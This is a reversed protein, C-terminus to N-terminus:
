VCRIGAIGFLHVHLDALPEPHALVFHCNAIVATGPIATVLRQSTRKTKDGVVDAIDWQCRDTWGTCGTKRIVDYLKAKWSTLEIGVSDCYAKADM